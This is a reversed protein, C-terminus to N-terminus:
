TALRKLIACFTNMCQGIGCKVKGTIYNEKDYEVGTVHKAGHYLSWAGSLFIWPGFDLVTKDKLINPPLLGTYIKKNVQPDTISKGM